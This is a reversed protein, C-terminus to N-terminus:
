KASRSCTKHLRSISAIHSRTQYTNLRLLVTIVICAGYRIMFDILVLNCNPKYGAPGGEVLRDLVWEMEQLEFSEVEGDRPIPIFDPPLESAATMVFVYPLM